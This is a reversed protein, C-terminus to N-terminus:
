DKEIESVVKEWESKFIADGNEFYYVAGWAHTVKRYVTAQGKEVITIQEVDANGEKLKERYVGDNEYIKPPHIIVTKETNAKIERNIVVEPEVPVVIQTDEKEISEEELKEEEAMEDIQVEINNEEQLIEEELSEIAIEKESIEQIIEEEVVEEKTEEQPLNMAVEIDDLMVMPYVNDPRRNHAETYKRKAEEFKGEQFLVLAEDMLKLYEPDKKAAKQEKKALKIKQNPSLNSWDKQALVSTHVFIFLFLLTSIIKM